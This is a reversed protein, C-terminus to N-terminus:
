LKGIMARLEAVDYRGAARVRIIPVGAAALAADKFADREQADARWHSRDDLEIVLVAEMSDARALVYDCHMGSGKAGHSQWASDPVTVVDMLRIKVMVIM